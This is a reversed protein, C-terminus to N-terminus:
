DCAMPLLAHMYTMYNFVNVIVTLKFVNYIDYINLLVTAIRRSSLVHNALWIIIHLLVHSVFKRVM